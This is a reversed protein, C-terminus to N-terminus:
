PYFGDFVTDEMHIVEQSIRSSGNLVNLFDHRDSKGLFYGDLGDLVKGLM